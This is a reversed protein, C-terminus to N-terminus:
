AVDDSPPNTDSPCDGQPYRETAVTPLILIVPPGDQMQARPRPKAENTDTSFPVVEGM